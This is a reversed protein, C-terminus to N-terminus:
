FPNAGVCKAGSALAHPSLDDTLTFAATILIAVVAIYRKMLADGILLQSSIEKIPTVLFLLLIPQNPLQFRKPQFYRNLFKLPSSSWSLRKNEYWAL